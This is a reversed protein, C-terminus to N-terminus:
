SSCPYATFVHLCLAAVNRCVGTVDDAHRSIAEEEVVVRATFILVNPYSGIVLTPTILCVLDIVKDKLWAKAKIQRTM